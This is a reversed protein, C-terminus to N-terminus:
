RKSAINILSSFVNVIHFSFNKDANTFMDCIKALGEYM